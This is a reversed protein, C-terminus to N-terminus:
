KFFLARLSELSMGGIFTIFGTIVSVVWTRANAKAQQELVGAQYKDLKDELCQHQEDRKVSIEKMHLEFRDMREVLGGLKGSLQGILFDDQQRRNVKGDEM